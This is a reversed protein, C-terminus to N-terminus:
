TVFASSAWAGRPPPARAAAASSRAGRASGVLRGRLTEGAYRLTALSLGFAARTWRGLPRPEPRTLLAALTYRVVWAYERAMVSMRGEETSLLTMSAARGRPSSERHRLLGQRLLRAEPTRAVFVAYLAEALAMRTRQPGARQAAYHRLAAP